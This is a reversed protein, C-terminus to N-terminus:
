QVSFEFSNNYLVVCWDRTAPDKVFFKVSYELPPLPVNLSDSANGNGDTHVRMFNWFGEDGYFGCDGPSGCNALADNIDSDGPWGNLTLVYSHGPKLGSLQITGKLAGVSGSFYRITGQSGDIPCCNSIGYTPMLDLM